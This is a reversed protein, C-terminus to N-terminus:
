RFSQYLRQLKGKGRCSAQENKAGAIILVHSANQTDQSRIELVREQGPVAIIRAANPRFIESSEQLAAGVYGVRKAGM